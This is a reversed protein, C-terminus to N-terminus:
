RASEFARAEEGNLAGIVNIRNDAAQFIRGDKYVLGSPLSPKVANALSANPFFRTEGDYFFGERIVNVSEGCAIVFVAAGSLSGAEFAQGSPFAATDIARRKLLSLSERDFEFLEIEGNMSNYEAAKIRSEGHGSALKIMSESDTKMISSGAIEFGSPGRKIKHVTLSQSFYDWCAIIDGDFYACRNSDNLDIGLPTRAGSNIDLVETADERALLATSGGSGYVGSFESEGFRLPGVICELRKEGPAAKLLRDSCLILFGAGSVGCVSRFNSIGSIVMATKADLASIIRLNGSFDYVAIYSSDGSVSFFSKVSSTFKNYPSSEDLMVFRDGELSFGLLAASGDKYLGAKLRYVFRPSIEAARKEDILSNLFAFDLAVSKRRGDLTKIDLAGANVFPGAATEDLVIKWAPFPSVMFTKRKYLEREAYGASDFVLNAFPANFRA